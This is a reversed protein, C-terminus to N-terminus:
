NVVFACLFEHSLFSLTLQFPCIALVVGIPFSIGLVFFERVSLLVRGFTNM